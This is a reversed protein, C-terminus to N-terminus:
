LATERYRNTLISCIMIGMCVEALSILNATEPDHPAATNGDYGPFADYDRHTMTNECIKEANNGESSIKALQCKMKKM